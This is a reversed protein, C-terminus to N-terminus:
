FFKLFRTTKISIIFQIRNERNLICATQQTRKERSTGVAQQVVGLPSDEDIPISHKESIDKVKEPIAPEYQWILKLHPKNKINSFTVEKIM